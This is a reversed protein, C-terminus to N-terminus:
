GWISVQRRHVRRPYQAEIETKAQEVLYERYRILNQSITYGSKVPFRDLRMSETLNEQTVADIDVGSLLDAGVDAVVIREWKEPLYLIETTDLTPAVIRVSYSITCLATQWPLRGVQVAAYSSDLPSVPILRNAVPHPELNEDLWEVSNIKVTELPLEVYQASEITAETQFPVALPQWLSAVASRISRVITERPWRTPFRVDVGLAHAAATTDRMGRKCSTVINTTPNYTVVRILENDVELLTGPGINSEEDPSLVDVTLSITTQSADMAVALPTSPTEEIVPELYKTEVQQRLDNITTM